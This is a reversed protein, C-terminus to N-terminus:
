GYIGKKKKLLGATWSVWISFEYLIVMPLALLMMNFADGTPTIVASIAAIIVIAYGMRKRMEAANVIGLRTLLYSLVPMEFIAGCIIIITTVFSIYKMASIVAVLDANGLSLLFRLASPLLIFYAFLCGSAFAASVFVIFYSANKKLDDSVAPSIFAWIQYAIVPCSIMLGATFAVKMYIMFAEEPSFFALKGIADGAPYKLAKLIHQSFPLSILTALGLAVLSAIIRGRLEKLHELVSLNREM